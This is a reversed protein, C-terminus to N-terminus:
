HRQRRKWLRMMLSDLKLEIINKNHFDLLDIWSMPFETDRALFWWLLAVMSM